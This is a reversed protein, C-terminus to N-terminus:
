KWGRPRWPLKKLEVIAHANGGGYATNVTWRSFAALSVGLNKAIQVKTMEGKHAFYYAVADKKFEDTFKNPNGM